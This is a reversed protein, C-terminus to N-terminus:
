GHMEVLTRLRSVVRERLAVPSLVIVDDGHWLISDIFGAEDSYPLECLDFQDDSSLTRAEGRLAHGRGRRIRLQAVDRPEFLHSDLFTLVHFDPITEFAGPKSVIEVEGVIRDLRFTRSARRDLDEGVLYWNGKRSGLGYPNLVRSEDNLEASRYKFSVTACDGIARTLPVFASSSVQVKPSLNPLADFDSAIGLSRLKILASHASEGLAAGRWAEAALSLLAIETGTLEGLNLSYSEPHIRYGPEDEFGPDVGRVDIVIGLNRLDDKDREFMREMSSAEGEYGEISRFIESKTLYRRTALLAITLNILRESKRSAM